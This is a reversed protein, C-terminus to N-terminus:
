RLGKTRLESELRKRITQFDEMSPLVGNIFLQRFACGTVDSWPVQDRAHYEGTAGQHVSVYGRLSKKTGDDTIPDKFIERDEGAVVGATAKMAFGFTDRTNMQYSFSGVGLVLNPVFGTDRLRYCIQEARDFTISDGYILGVHPDLMKYGEATITGGFTEWLLQYSGKEAPTERQDGRKHEHGAIIDVPDGSDPRIVVTGERAMIEDKLYPMFDTLVKWYDWTDSVISVPGTPYVETILRRFTDVEDLHGGMCMVSHETAPISGGISTRDGTYFAHVLDIAPVSDTGKFSLLHGAGSLAAAEPGMMGRCSFDHAQWDVFGLDGGTEKATEDLLVRYRAALTATTMMPWLVSSMQTEIANTLWFASPVTNRIVFMPCRLPVLAGEPLGWVELPMYGLAHLDRLHDTKTEIGNQAMRHEYVECIHEIPREFFHERWRGQLWELLYYQLGFNVVRNVAPLRSARPTWNSFVESTGPPYQAVHGVKYFDMAYLPDRADIPNVNPFLNPPYPPTIRNSM